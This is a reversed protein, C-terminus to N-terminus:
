SRHYQSHFPNCVSIRGFGEARREGLGDSELQQLYAMAQKEEASDVKFGLVSGRALAVTDSKPLGQAANWGSVTVRNLNAAVCKISKLDDPFGLHAGNIQDLVPLGLADRLILHSQLTISFYRTEKSAPHAIKENFKDWREAFDSAATIPNRSEIVLEGLGRTRAKGVSLHERDTVVKELESLLQDATDGTAELQGVFRLPERETITKDGNSPKREVQKDTLMQYSFLQGQQSTGRHRSIGVHMRLQRNPQEGVPPESASIYRGGISDLRSSCDDCTPPDETKATGSELMMDILRDRLSGIHKLGHRKCAAATAPLLDPQAARYAPLFDSFLINQDVFIQQFVPDDSGKKNMFIEAFAGRVTSGPLFDLTRAFQESARSQLIAVPSEALLTVQITKNKM